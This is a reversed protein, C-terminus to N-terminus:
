VKDKLQWDGRAKPKEAVHELTAKIQGSTCRDFKHKLVPILAGKSLYKFDLITTKFDDLHQAPILKVLTDPKTAATAGNTANPAPPPPM